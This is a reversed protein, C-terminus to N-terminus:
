NKVEEYSVDEVDPGKPDTQTNTTGQYMKTSITNWTENLKEIKTKISDIDKNKHSEKLSEVQDKITKKDDENLKDGFEKVQKETTFIISDAQNLTDITEKEKKDKEANEEAERKMREIEDKDLSSSGEIRIHQEKGTAKDKAKVTLIGNADIDFSVEIQPIGRPAPMIGDLHFRGITRNDRAM